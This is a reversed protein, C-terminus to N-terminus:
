LSLWPILLSPCFFSRYLVTVAVQTAFRHLDAWKIQPFYCHPLRTVKEEVATRLTVGGMQAGVMERFKDAGWEEVLWM